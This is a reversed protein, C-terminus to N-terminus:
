YPQHPFVYRKLLYDQFSRLAYIRQACSDGPFLKSALVVPDCEGNVFGSPPIDSSSINVTGSGYRGHQTSTSTEQDYSGSHRLLATLDMPVFVPIRLPDADSRIESYGFPFCPAPFFHFNNTSARHHWINILESLRAGAAVVWQFEISYGHCPHYNADYVCHAWEVRGDASPDDFDCVCTKRLVGDSEHCGPRGSLGCVLPVRSYTLFDGTYPQTPDRDHDSMRTHVSTCVDHAFAVEAWDTQFDMTWGSPGATSRPIFTDPFRRPRINVCFPQNGPPVGVAGSVDTTRAPGISSVSLTTASQSSTVISGPHSYLSPGFNACMLKAFAAQVSCRASFGVAKLPTGM